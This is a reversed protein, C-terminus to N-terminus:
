QCLFSRVLYALHRFLNFMSHSSLALILTWLDGKISLCPTYQVALFHHQDVFVELNRPYHLGIEYRRNPKSEIDLKKQLFQLFEWFMTIATM